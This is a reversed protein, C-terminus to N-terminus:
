PLLVLRRTLVAADSRLRLFYLGPEVTGAPVTRSLRAPGQEVRSWRLRGRIDYLELTASGTAPVSFTIAAAGHVPSAFALEAPAAENLTSVSVGPTSGGIGFPGFWLVRYTYMGPDLPRDEYSRQGAPPTDLVALTDWTGSEPAYRLIKFVTSPDTAHLSWNTRIWDSGSQASVFSAHTGSGALPYVVVPTAAHWRGDWELWELRYSLSDAPPVGDDRVYVLYDNSVPAAILMYTGADVRRWVRYASGATTPTWRIFVYGAGVESDMWLAGRDTGDSLGGSAHQEVGDDAVLRWTYLHAREVTSDEFVITALTDRLAARVTVWTTPEWEAGREIRVFTATDLPSVTWVIRMRETGRNYTSLEASFEPIQFLASEAYRVRGEDVWGPRFEVRWGLPLGREDIALTHSADASLPGADTWQGAGVRRYLRATFTDAGAVRWAARVDRFDQASSVLSLAPSGVLSVGGTSRVSGLHTWRLEFDNSVGGVLTTDVFRVQRQEDPWLNTLLQWGTANTRRWLGPQAVVSLSDNALTWQLHAFGAFVYASDVSSPMAAPADPTHVLTDGSAYSTAWDLWKVRYTLDSGAPFGSDVFVMTGAADDRIVASGADVSPAGAQSRELHPPSWWEGQLNMGWTLTAKGRLWVLDTLHPSATSLTAGPFVMAFHAPPFSGGFSSFSAQVAPTFLVDHQDDFAMDTLYRSGYGGWTGNLVSDNAVDLVSWALQDAALDIARVVGYRNAAILRDRRRDHAMGLVLSPLVPGAVALSDWHEAGSLSLAWLGPPSTSDASTYRGGLVLM